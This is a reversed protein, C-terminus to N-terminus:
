WKTRRTKMKECVQCVKFQRLEKHSMDGGDEKAWYVNVVEDTIWNGYKHFHMM